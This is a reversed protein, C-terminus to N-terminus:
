ELKPVCVDVCHRNRFKQLFYRSLPHQRLCATHEDKALHVLQHRQQLSSVGLLQLAQLDVIIQYLNSIRNINRKLAHFKKRLEVIPVSTQRLEYCGCRDARQYMQYIEIKACIKHLLANNISFKVQGGM